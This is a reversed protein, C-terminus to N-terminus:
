RQNDTLGKLQSAVNLLLYDKVVKPTHLLDYLSHCSMLGIDLLLNVALVGDQYPSALLCAYKFVIAPVEWGGLGLAWGLTSVM